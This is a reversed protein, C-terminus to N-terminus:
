VVSKRCDIIGSAKIAENIGDADWKRRIPLAYKQHYDLCNMGASLSFYALKIDVIYTGEFIKFREDEVPRIFSIFKGNILEMNILLTTEKDFTRWKWKKFSYIPHRFPSYFATQDYHFIPEQKNDEKKDKLSSAAKKPFRINYYDRQYELKRILTEHAKKIKQFKEWEREKEIAKNIELKEYKSLVWYQLLTIKKRPKPEKINKLYQYMADYKINELDIKQQINM